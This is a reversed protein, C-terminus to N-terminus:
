GTALRSQHSTCNDQQFVGKGHPYCFLIFPYHHDGLLEVHRIANLSTPVRVLCGFLAVFFVGWVMISGGQGQVTGVQCSPDM